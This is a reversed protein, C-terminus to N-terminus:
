LIGLFFYFLISLISETTFLNKKHQQLFGSLIRKHYFKIMLMFIISVSSEASFCKLRVFTKELRCCISNVIWQCRLLKLKLAVSVVICGSFAKQRTITCKITLMATVFYVIRNAHRSFLLM